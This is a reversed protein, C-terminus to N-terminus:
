KWGLDEMTKLEYVTQASRNSLVRFDVSEVCNIWGLYRGVQQPIYNTYLAVEPAVFRQGVKFHKALM